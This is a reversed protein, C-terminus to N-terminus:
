SGQHPVGSPMAAHSPSGALLSRYVRLWQQRVASWTCTRCWALANRALRGALENDDLLNLVHAALTEADDIPALLGNEGHAVIAPIGGANTSVVPLGSSFAEIVSTPMNDINPSQLYIDHAAYLNAIDDPSTRGAFEVHRLELKSVLARIRGEEAGSGVLTLAAEPRRRQVIAFARITCAVNYLPDFNRTSVIRPQLSPRPRFCFRDTDVINPIITAGIGFSAFVDFLFRSPV